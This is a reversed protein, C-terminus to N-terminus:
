DNLHHFIKLYRSLGDLDPFLLFENIGSLELFTRAEPFLRAPIEIKRLALPCIEELGQELDRHLTFYASQSFLRSHYREPALAIVSAPFKEREDIFINQYNYNSPLDDSNYLNYKKKYFKKNLDCPDLIWVVADEMADEKMDKLAFYLAAGFSATWDLLRTPLGHHQMWFVTQWPNQNEPLLSGSLNRFDYFLRKEKDKTEDPSLEMRGLKPKLPWLAEDKNQGRFFLIDPRKLSNIKNTVDALIDNWSKM